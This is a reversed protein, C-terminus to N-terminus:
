RPQASAALGAVTLDREELARALGGTLRGVIGPGEFVLATYLQVTTAGAELCAVVDAVTSIGGCANVPLAGGTSAVVERVLAPTRPALPRGSRGGAGTALRDDAVPVANSCTLGGAGHELAVRATALVAERAAGTDFPPLKVFVPRDTRARFADLLEALHAEQDRDRGWSVNPCSANLELGDVLPALREIVAVADSVAEDAVSVLRPATRRARALTRAAAEVGPNPLGMANTLADADRDRAVRPRPNGARPERTITGGVVYGFGLRGLADLHRLSKDFGAALGIPNRMPIGALTVGQRLDTETGGISRWPLPLGLLALAVRHANEPDLAFFLPRAVSRYWGM